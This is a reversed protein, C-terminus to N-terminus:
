SGKKWYDRMLQRSWNPQYIEGRPAFETMYPKIDRPDFRAARWLCSSFSCGSHLVPSKM